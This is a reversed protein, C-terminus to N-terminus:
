DINPEIAPIHVTVTTGKGITSSCTLGYSDGYALKIRDNTNRVGYGGSTDAIGDSATFNKRMTQEDMGVGDDSITIRIGDEFRRTTISLYGSKSAKEFIGHIVANEVIPQLIIKIVQCNDASPDLDWTVHIRNDFRLNQIELYLKIHKLEDRVSIIERGKSLSLRYFKSLANVMKSIEPINHSIATCNILDLSNYLFHPNIQAQLAKLELNKIQRGYEVKDDMLSDMQDMMQNFSGILQAIEDDGTPEMRVETNGNEVEHMTKTLMSLRDLTSRSLFYAMLYAIVTVVAVILLMEASLMNGPHYIDKAPLISAVHWGSSNLTRSQVYYRTGNEVVIDWNPVGTPKIQQAISSAKDADQDSCSALLINQGRMILLMGNETISTGDLISHLRSQDIDVRVIALPEQISRPNYITQMSSFWKREEAPQDSFDSPSCWYRTSTQTAGHYWHCNSITNIQVINNQDNSYSYENNVYLQIRDVGSLTRLQEFTTAVQNSDQLRQIYTFDRPDNSAVAYVLPDTALIDIVEDLQTWIRDIALFTDDFANQAASLTQNQVVTRVRFNSYLSFFGLPLVILLFYILLLRSRLKGYSTLRSLWSLIKNKM